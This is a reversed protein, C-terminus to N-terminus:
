GLDRWLDGGQSDPNCKGLVLGHGLGARERAMDHTLDRSARLLERRGFLRFSSRSVAL